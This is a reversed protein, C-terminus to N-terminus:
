SRCNTKEGNNKSCITYLKRLLRRRHKFTYYEVNLIESVTKGRWEEPASKEIDETVTNIDEDKFISRVITLVADATIRVKNM